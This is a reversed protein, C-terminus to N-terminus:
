RGENPDVAYSPVRLVGQAAECPAVPFVGSNLWVLFRPLSMPRSIGYGQVLDCGLARLRDITEGTEAGEAVVKLGLNHGLDITSRVIVEDRADTCLNAVFSQDIKIESAPLTRLYSLSSFGTGFDDISLGVGMSQFGLATAMTRPGEALLSTETIEVVLQDAPLAHALLTSEVFPLLTEDLLDLTSLNVSVALRYGLEDFLRTAEVSRELVLRTLSTILGTSEALAVFEPPPVFGLVPHPWRVLAEAGVVMGTRLDLKPQFYVELTRHEIAARLDGLMSLRDPTHRDIDARFPEISTHKLKAEQMAIDARRLVTIGNEVMAAADVYGVNLTVHVDYGGVQLPLEGAALIRRGLAMTDVGTRLDVLVSFEDGATRAVLGEDGVVDCLRHALGTLMEDGALHGLTANVERLRSVGVLLVSTSGARSEDALVDTIHREFWVRNPLGSLHDHLAEHAIQDHLMTNRLTLAVRDAIAALRVVEGDDFMETAGFRDAVLFIGIVVENDFLPALIANTSNLESGLTIGMENLEAITVLRAKPPEAGESATSALVDLGDIPAGIWTMIPRTQVEFGFQVLAVRSCRLRQSIEELAVDVVEQPRLARGISASLLHLDELDRLRQATKQHGRLVLFVGFLPVLFVVALKPWAVTFATAIVGTVGVILHRPVDIMLRSLLKPRDDRAVIGLAFWILVDELMSISVLIVILALLTRDNWGTADTLLSRLGFAAVVNCVRLGLNFALLPGGHRNFSRALAIGFILLEAVVRVAITSRVDLFVLSMAMPVETLTFNYVSNHGEIDVKLMQSGLFGACILPATWWPSELIPSSHWLTLRALTLGVAILAIGYALLASTARSPADHPAASGEDGHEAGSETM